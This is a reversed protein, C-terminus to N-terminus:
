GHPKGQTQAKAKESKPGETASAGGFVRPYTAKLKQLVKPGHKTDMLDQSKSKIEELINKKLSWDLEADM